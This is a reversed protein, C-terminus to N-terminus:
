RVQDPYRVIPSQVVTGDSYAVGNEAVAYDLRSEVDHARKDCIEGRAQGDRTLNPPRVDTGMTSPSRAPASVHRVRYVRDSPRRSSCGIWKPGERM